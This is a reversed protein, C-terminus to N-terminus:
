NMKFTQFTRLIIHNITIPIKSDVVHPISFKWNQFFPHNEDMM